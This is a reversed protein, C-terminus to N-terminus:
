ARADLAHDAKLTAADLHPQPAALRQATGHADAGPRSEFRQM